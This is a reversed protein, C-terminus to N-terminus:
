GEDSKGRAQTYSNYPVKEALVMGIEGSLSLLGNTCFLPRSSIRQSRLFRLDSLRILITGGAEHM